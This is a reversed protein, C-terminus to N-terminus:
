RSPISPQYIATATPYKRQLKRYLAFYEVLAADLQRIEEERLLEQPEAAPSMSPVRDLRQDVSLLGGSPGAGRGGHTLPRAIDPNGHGLTQPWIGQLDVVFCM